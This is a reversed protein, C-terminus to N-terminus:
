GEWDKLLGPQDTLFWELRDRVALARAMGRFVLRDFGSLIGTVDSGYKQMFRDM